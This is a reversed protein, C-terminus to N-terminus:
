GKFSNFRCLVYCDHVGVVWPPRSFIFHFSAVHLPQGPRAGWNDATFLCTRGLWSLSRRAVAVEVFSHHWQESHMGSLRSPWLGLQLGVSTCKLVMPCDRFHICIQRCCDLWTEIRLGPLCFLRPPHSITWGEQRHVILGHSLCLAVNSSQTWRHVMFFDM